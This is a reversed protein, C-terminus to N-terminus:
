ALRLFRSIPAARPCHRPCGGAQLPDRTWGYRDRVSSSIFRLKNAGHFLREKSGFRVAKGSKSCLLRQGCFDCVFRLSFLSNNTRWEGRGRHLVERDRRDLAKESRLLRDSRVGAFTQYSSGQKSHIEPLDAQPTPSFHHSRAVPSNCSDSIPRSALSSALLSAM